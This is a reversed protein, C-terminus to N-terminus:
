LLCDRNCGRGWRGRKIDLNHHYAGNVRKQKNTQMAKEIKEKKYLIFGFSLIRRSHNPDRDRGIRHHHHNLPTKSPYPAESITM